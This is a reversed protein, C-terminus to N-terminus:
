ALHRVMDCNFEMRRCARTALLGFFSMRHHPPDFCDLDFPYIQHGSVDLYKLSPMRSLKRMFEMGYNLGYGSSNYDLQSLDLSVLSRIEIIHGFLTHNLHVPIGNVSLAKLNSNCARLDSISTRALNLVALGPLQEVIEGFTEGAVPLYMDHFDLRVLSKLNRLWVFADNDPPYTEDTCGVTFSRLTAGAPHKSLHELHEWKVLGQSAASVSLTLELLPHQLLLCLTKENLDPCASLCIKTICGINNRCFCELIRCNLQGKEAFRSLLQDSLLSSFCYGQELGLLERLLEGEGGGELLVIELARYLLQQVSDLALSVLKRPQILGDDM